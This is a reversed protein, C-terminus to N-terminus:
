SAIPRGPQKAQCIYVATAAIAPLIISHLAHMYTKYLFCFIKQQKELPTKKMCDMRGNMQQKNM